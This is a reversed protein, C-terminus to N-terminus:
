NFFSYWTFWFRSGKGLESQVGMEGGNIKVLQKCIPLGLGTGDQRRTMSADGQSFSEWIVKM